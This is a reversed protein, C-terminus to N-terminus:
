EAFFNLLCNSVVLNYFKGSSDEADIDPLNVYSKDDDSSSDALM